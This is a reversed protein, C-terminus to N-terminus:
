TEVIRYAVTLAFVRDRSSEVDWSQCLFVFRGLKVAALPVLWTFLRALINGASGLGVTLRFLPDCFECAFFSSIEM